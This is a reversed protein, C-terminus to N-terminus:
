VYEVIQSGEPLPKATRKVGANDDKRITRALFFGLTTEVVIYHYKNRKLPKRCGDLSKLKNVPRTIRIYRTESM